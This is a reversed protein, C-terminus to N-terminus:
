KEKSLQQTKKYCIDFINSFLPSYQLHPSRHKKLSDNHRYSRFTYWIYKFIIALIPFTTPRNKKLCGNHRETIYIFYIRFYHSPNHIYPDLKRQPYKLFMYCKLTSINKPFRDNKRYNEISSVKFKRFNFENNDNSNKWRQNKRMLSTVRLFQYFYSFISKSRILLSMPFCSIHNILYRKEIM